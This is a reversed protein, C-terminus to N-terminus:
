TLLPIIIRRKDSPFDYSYEFQIQAFLKNCSEVTEPDTDKMGSDMM